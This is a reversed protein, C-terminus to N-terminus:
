GLFQAVGCVVDIGDITDVFHAHLIYSLQLLLVPKLKDSEYRRLALVAFYGLIRFLLSSIKM